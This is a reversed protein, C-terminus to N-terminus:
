YACIARCESQDLNRLVQDLARSSAPSLRERSRTDILLKINRRYELSMAHVLMPSSAEAEAMLLDANAETVDADTAILVSMALALGADYKIEGITALSGETKPRSSHEAVMSELMPMAASQCRMIFRRAPAIEDQFRVSALTMGTLTDPDIDAQSDIYGNVTLMANGCVQAFANFGSAAAAPIVSVDFAAEILARDEPHSFDPLGGGSTNATRVRELMTVGAAAQEPPAQETSGLVVVFALVASLM